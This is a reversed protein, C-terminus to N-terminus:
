EEAFHCRVHANGIRRLEPDVLFCVEEARPCRGAFKCGTMAYEKEERKSLVIDEKWKRDPDPVPVSEILLKTYYHRPRGLVEEVPGSEVINGRLMIAVEDSVYYATALDHTIYVVSVGADDRLKKFLNVISMSLSADVMSVPEDALLLKPKTILARAISVRQLQGGSFENPYKRAVDRFSLGVIGLAEEICEIQDARKAADRFHRATEFLYNEVRKLPNFTEFPNQFVTQIQSMFSLQEARDRSRHVTEGRYTITGSTPTHVGLIMRALTSKGSGSEGALTYIMPKDAPLVVNAKNVAVLHQRSLGGGITFVKSCDEVRLLESM